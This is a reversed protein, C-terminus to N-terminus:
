SRDEERKRRNNIFLVGGIVLGTAFISWSPNFSIRPRRADELAQIRAKLNTNETKLEKFAEVTMAAFERPPINLTKFGETNEGVWRPIVTEVDQAIFGGVTGPANGPAGPDKWEYTVGKLQVLKDLAGTLPEIKQKLRRDSVCTGGLSVSGAEVCGTANINGSFYGAWGNGSNNDGYV